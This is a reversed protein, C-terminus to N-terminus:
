TYLFDDSEGGVVLRYYPEGKKGSVFEIKGKALLVDDKKAECSRGRFSVIETLNNVQTGSLIKVDEIKYSCPTFISEDDNTIVAQVLARGIPYYEFDGYEEKIEDWEKICRIYFDSNEFKGQLKKNKEFHVFNEFDIRTDKGRFEYLKKLDEINYRKVPLDPDDFLTDLAKYVKYCNKIGYIILDFDSEPTNLGVMHSGTVGIDMEWIKSYQAIYYVFDLIKKEIPNPEKHFLNLLYEDPYYVKKIKNYPVAQVETNLVSDNYLYYPYRKKLYDFREPLAYVKKYRRGNVMRTGMPDPFYRLFAIIHNPPHILGKVDFFLGESTQIFDGERAYVPLFIM